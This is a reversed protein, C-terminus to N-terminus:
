SKRLKFKKEIFFIVPIKMFIVNLIYVVKLLVAM